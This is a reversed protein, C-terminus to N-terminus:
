IKRGPKNVMYIGDQFIRVDRGRVKTVRELSAAAIGALEKDPSSVTIFDKTTKVDIGKPLNIRRPIKEGLFNKVIAENEKIEVTFPFHSFCIKLEYSFKEQVGKIMNKIHASITNMNKKEKKTSKKRGVIIKNKEIKIDVNTKGFNRSVEGEKGNIKIKNATLHAEVGHPIEIEKFLDKRMKISIRM